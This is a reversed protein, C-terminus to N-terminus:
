RPGARLAANARKDSEFEAGRTPRPSTWRGSGLNGHAVRAARPIAGGGAWGSALLPGRPGQPALPASVKRAIEFNLGSLAQIALTRWDNETVGLCAIQYAHLYDKKELYRCNMSLRILFVSRFCPCSESPTAARTRVITIKTSQSSYVSHPIKSFWAPGRTGFEPLSGLQWDDCPSDCARHGDMM